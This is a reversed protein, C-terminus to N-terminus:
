SLVKNYFEMVVQRGHQSLENRKKPPKIGRASMAARFLAFAKAQKDKREKTRRKQASRKMESGESFL